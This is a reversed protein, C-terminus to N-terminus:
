KSFRPQRDLAFMRLDNAIEGFIEWAEQDFKEMLEENSRDIARIKEEVKDAETHILHIFNLIRNDLTYINFRKVLLSRRIIEDYTYKMPDRSFPIVYFAKLAPSYRFVDPTIWCRVELKKRKPNFYFFYDKDIQQLEKQFFKPIFM